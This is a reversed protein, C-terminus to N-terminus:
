TGDTTAETPRAPPQHIAAAVAAVGAGLSFRERTGPACRVVRWGLVAAENYKEVDELFGLARNHRGGGRKFVAGEVELAIWRDPWAFDFRWERTPHFRYEALPPELGLGRALAVVEGDAPKGRPARPKKARAGRKAITWTV